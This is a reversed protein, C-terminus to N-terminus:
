LDRKENVAREFWPQAAAYQGQSALCHGVQHLSRGLSEHDVRGYIDGQEKERSPASSGRSRRPSSAREGPLLGGPAPQQWPGRSRRPRPRRGAGQRRRRARVVAAGGRVQGARWATGVQHLSRGLSEHDVRGHM